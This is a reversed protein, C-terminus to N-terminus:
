TVAAGGFRVARVARGPGALTDLFAIIGSCSRQRLMAMESSFLIGVNVCQHSAANPWGAAIAITRCPLGGAHTALFGPCVVMAYHESQWIQVMGLRNHKVAKGRGARSAHILVCDLLKNSPIARFRSQCEVANNDNAIAHVEFCSAQSCVGDILPKCSNPPKGV